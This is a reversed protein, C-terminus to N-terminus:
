GGLSGAGSALTSTGLTRGCPAKHLTDDNALPHLALTARATFADFANPKCKGASGANFIAQIEAASLARNYLAVEDVLGNLHAGEPANAGILLDTAHTDTFLPRAKEGERIGNVYIAIQDSSLSGV